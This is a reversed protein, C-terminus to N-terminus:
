RECQEFEAKRSLPGPNHTTNYQECIMRAELYKVGRRLYRKRGPSPERGQSWAPNRKWWTRVFVNYMAEDAM